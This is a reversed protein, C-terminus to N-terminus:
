RPVLNLEQHIFGLGLATAGWPNAIEQVEGDLLVHGEDPTEVGALIRVLTSKGAGNAGVLAHVQGAAIDLSVDTLARVGGYHKSVSDLSLLPPPLEAAPLRGNARDGAAEHQGPPMPASNEM